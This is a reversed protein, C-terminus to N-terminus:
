KIKNIHAEKGSKSLHCKVCLPQMYKSQLNNLDFGEPCVEFVEKHDTRKTESLLGKEECKCCLPNDIKYQKSFKRWRRNNYFWRMDKVRKHVVRETQWPKKKVIPATPM